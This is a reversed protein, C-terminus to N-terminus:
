NYVMFKPGPYPIKYYKQPEFRPVPTGVLPALNPANAGQIMFSATGRRRKAHTVSLRPLRSPKAPHRHLHLRTSGASPSYNKPLRLRRAQPSSAGGSSRAQNLSPTSSSFFRSGPGSYSRSPDRKSRLPKHRFSGLFRRLTRRAVGSLAPVQGRRM